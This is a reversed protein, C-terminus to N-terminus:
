YHYQYFFYGPTRQKTLPLDLEPLRPLRPLKQETSNTSNVAPINPSQATQSYSNAIKTVPRERCKKEHNRLPGITAFYNRGCHCCRSPNSPNKTCISEHEIKTKNLKFLKKCGRSEWKCPLYVRQEGSFNPNDPCKKVHMKLTKIDAYNGKECFPCEISFGPNQPCAIEHLARHWKSIVKKECGYSKWQCSFYRKPRKKPPQSTEPFEESSRSRKGLLSPESAEALSNFLIIIIFVNFYKLFPAM